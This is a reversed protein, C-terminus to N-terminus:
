EQEGITTGSFLQRNESGWEDRRNAGAAVRTDMTGAIEQCQLVGLDRTM